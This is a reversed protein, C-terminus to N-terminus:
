SPLISVDAVGPADYIQTYGVRPEGPVQRKGVRGRLQLVVAHLQRLGSTQSAITVIACRGCRSGIQQTADAPGSFIPEAIPSIAM